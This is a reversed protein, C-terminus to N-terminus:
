NADAVVIITVWAPITALVKPLAAAENKVPIVVGVSRNGPASAKTM